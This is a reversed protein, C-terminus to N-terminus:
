FPSKNGRADVAVVSYYQTGTPPPLDISNGALSTVLPVLGDRINARTFM